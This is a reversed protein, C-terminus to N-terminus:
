KITSAKLIFPLLTGMNKPYLLAGKVLTLWRLADPVYGYGTPFCVSYINQPLYVYGGQGYNPGLWPKIQLGKDTSDYAVVFHSSFPEDKSPTRLTGDSYPSNFSEYWRMVIGVGIHYNTMHSTIADYEYLTKVGNMVNRSAILKQIQNYNNFNNETLASTDIPDHLDNSEPLVGFFCAGMMGAYGDEGADSPPYGQFAYGAAESFDPDCPFGFYNGVMDSVGIGVCSNFRHEQIQNPFRKLRDLSM